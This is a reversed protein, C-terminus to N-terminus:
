LCWRESSLGLYIRTPLIRAFLKYVVGEVYVADAAIISEPRSSFRRSITPQKPKMWSPHSAIFVFTYLYFLPPNNQQCLLNPTHIHSHLDNRTNVGFANKHMGRRRRRQEKRPPNKEDSQEQCVTSLPLTRITKIVSSLQLIHSLKVPIAPTFIYQRRPSRKTMSILPSTSTHM